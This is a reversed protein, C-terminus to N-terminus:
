KTDIKSNAKKAYGM